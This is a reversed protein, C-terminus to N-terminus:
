KALETMAGPYRIAAKRFGDIARAYDSNLRTIVIRDPTAEIRVEDNRAFGTKALVDKDLTVGFSNGFAQIKTTAAM